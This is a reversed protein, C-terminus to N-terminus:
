YNKLLNFLKPRKIGPSISFSNRVMEPFWEDMINILGTELIERTPEMGQIVRERIFQQLPEQLGGISSANQGVIGILDKLWVTKNLYYDIANKSFKVKAGLHFLKLKSAFSKCTWVLRQLIPNGWFSNYTNSYILRNVVFHFFGRYYQRMSLICTENKLM